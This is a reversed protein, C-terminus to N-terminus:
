RRRSRNIPAGRQGASSWRRRGDPCRRAARRYEAGAPFRASERAHVITWGVGNALPELDDASQKPGEILAPFNVGLDLSAGIVVIGTAAKCSVAKAERWDLCLVDKVHCESTARLQTWLLKQPLLPHQTLIKAPKRGPSGACSTTAGFQPMPEAPAQHVATLGPPVRGVSMPVKAGDWWARRRAFVMRSRLRVDM